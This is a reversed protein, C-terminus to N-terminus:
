RRKHQIQRAREFVKRFFEEIKEPCLGLELGEATEQLKALKKAELTQNHVDLGLKEKAEAVKIVAQDRAEMLELLCDDDTDTKRALRLLMTIDITGILSRYIDLKKELIEETDMINM